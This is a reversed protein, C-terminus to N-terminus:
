MATTPTSSPPTPASPLRGVGGQAGLGLALERVQQPRGADQARPDIARPLHAPKQPNGPGREQLPAGQTYMRRNTLGIRPTQPGKQHPTVMPNWM